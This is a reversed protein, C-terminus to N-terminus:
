EVPSSLTSTASSQEQTGIRICLVTSSTPSQQQPMLATRVLRRASQAALALTPVCASVEHHDLPPCGTRTAMAANMPVITQRCRQRCRISCPEHIAGIPRHIDMLIRLLIDELLIRVESKRAEDVLHRALDIAIRLEWAPMGSAKADDLANRLRRETIIADAQMGNKTTAALRMFEPTVWHYQPLQGAKDAAARLLDHSHPALCEDDVLDMLM